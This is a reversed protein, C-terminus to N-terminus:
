SRPFSSQDLPHEKLYERVLRLQEDFFQQMTKPLIPVESLGIYRPKGPAYYVSFLHPDTTFFWWWQKDAVHCRRVHAMMM